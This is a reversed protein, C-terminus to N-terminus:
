TRSWTGDQYRVARITIANSANPEVAFRSDYIVGAVKCVDVGRVELSHGDKGIWVQFMTRGDEAVFDLRQADITQPTEGFEGIQVKM